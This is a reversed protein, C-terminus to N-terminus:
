GGGRQNYSKRRKKLVGPLLAEKLAPQPSPGDAERPAQRERGWPTGERGHARHETTYIEEGLCPAHAGPSMIREKTKAGPARRLSNPFSACLHSGLWLLPQPQAPHPHEQGGPRRGLVVGPSSSSNGPFRTTEGGRRPGWPTISHRYMRYLPVQGKGKYVVNSM